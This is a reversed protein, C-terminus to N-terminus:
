RRRPCCRARGGVPRRRRQSVRDGDPLRGARKGRSGGTRRGSRRLGVGNGIVLPLVQSHLKAGALKKYCHM